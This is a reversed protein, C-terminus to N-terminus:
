PNSFPDSPAAPTTPEAAPPAPTAETTPPLSFPDAPEAPTTPAPTEEPTAPAAPAVGFPDAPPETAPPETAPPEAPPTSPIAPATPAPETPAASTDFPNTSDMAPPVAPATPAVDDRFPDVQTDPTAPIESPVVPPTVIADPVPTLTPPLSSGDSPGLPINPVPRPQGPQIQGSSVQEKYLEVRAMLRAMEIEQREPGQVRQLAYSVNVARRGLAELKAAREFDTKAADAMGLRHQTLGRFFHARPDEIGADIVMNLVRQAEPYDGAYFRHVGYGYLETMAGDQALTRNTLGASTVATLGSAVLSVCKLWRSM